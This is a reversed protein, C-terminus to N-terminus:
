GRLIPTRIVGPCVVSVRVGYAKAEVRLTKSLGVVAHKATTYSGSMPSTFLGAMSATNVIHGFGQEIMLPYVAQVGYAVGRLNVDFVDEWDRLTYDRIEGGVGIGANNFFLDIRGSRDVTEAVVREFGSFERVDLEAAIARGGCERIGAAAEEALEAQRDALVVEFGREGLEEGFARGIGSAGGTVIAVGGRDKTDISGEVM